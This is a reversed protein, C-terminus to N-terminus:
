SRDRPSQSTLPRHPLGALAQQIEEQWSPVDAATFIDVSGGQFGGDGAREEMWSEIELYASRLGELVEPKANWLERQNAELLRRAIEELGWPNKEEFFKRMDPDLVFTSAIDDFIWDDVERTSAEWGYVRSVRKTIDSAGKYGHVKMGEIWAPNLLKTRVVRRIEDALDHVDVHEADRTDGYYAPVENGSLHRAAVTLGGQNGFYCCCGLLDYEDSVVKNFTVSVNALNGAFRGHSAGGSLGEGYGYGNFAIFIDSLDKETKWASALIALNVGTVYTGPRSGFIRITADRLDGGNEVMAARTHMRVANQEDPEDLVAVARVAQDLLSVCGAFNDRVIGSMRVTVDIRPRGLQEGPIVAVSRVQGGPSWVPETGLLALMQALGEGDASMIDSAMWYYAVSQPYKGNEELYKSVLADALRQGIRWAARTPVRTPDLSYFNRGTPLVADHGRTILGSPGPPTFGGSMGNLLAGTEDSKRTRDALDRVRGTISGLVGPPLTVPLPSRDEEASPPSLVDRVIRRGLVDIEELLQGYSKGRTTDFMEQRSLLDELSLGMSGAIEYRLSGEGQDFRLISYLFDWIDEGEPVKGFIHMGRQIQTNRVRSLIEHCRSVVADLPTDHSIGVEGSLNASEVADRIFHSLAHARAPDHRATEYEGLLHDLEELPGYLSSGQMVAQMHGVLTAYGRRKAITGEPPNDTNYIYLHPLSGIAIDPFCSGSLATGKGPLFELNGHTGVHIVLDATFGDAFWNYTALYQHTPPCEPDHLIRCVEGDCRAGACGRKPQVCVIANGFQVGTVLIDRDLVMAAGPPEGWTAVVKDRVRGPLASFFRNYEEVSIRALVGGSLAIDAATTWRFESIAKREMIASVLEEGNMPVDVRYGADRMAALVRAVSELSDLHAASGVNAEVGACPNNNLLFVVRREAAPTEQLHIWKRVREAIRRSRGPIPTRKCAGDGAGASSTGLIVPEIAGEFEPMAICWGVDSSLGDGEEWADRSQYFTIVPQFLPINLRRILDTGPAAAEEGSVSGKSAGLMFSICKIVASIGPGRPPLFYEQIVDAMGFSGITDDRVAYTFAPIVALGEEELSRILDDEIACNGTVWAVRSLLLGVFPRNKVPYWALYEEPTFFPGPADPHYIGQWPLASPLAPTTDRGGIEQAIYLLLNRLNETGNYTLYSYCTTVVENPVTSLAWRSPDYGVCILPVHTGIERIERELEDWVRNTTWYLLAADAGRLDAIAKEREIPDDDLARIPYAICDIGEAAAVERLAPVYSNWMISVIKM